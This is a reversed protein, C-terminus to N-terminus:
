RAPSAGGPPGNGSEGRLDEPPLASEITAHLRGVFADFAVEDEPDPAAVPAHVVFGLEVDREIPKLGHRFLRSGGYSTVPLVPVGGASRLLTRLGGAKFAGMAGTKSRTGEPFLVVTFGDDRVRRGLEALAAHAQAPDHRDINASGGHQLNFSVGPIGRALEIKSVYRPELPALFDATMAIDLLSQHNMVVVYHASPDVHELGRARFRTGALRAARNIWRAMSSAVRQHAHPGLRLAVRQLVDHVLLSAFVGGVTAGTAAWDLADSRLSM